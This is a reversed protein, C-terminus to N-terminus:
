LTTGGLNLRTVGYEENITTLPTPDSLLNCMVILPTM